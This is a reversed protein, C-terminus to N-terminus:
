SALSREVNCDVSNHIHFFLYSVGLVWCGVGEDIVVVVDFGQCTCLMNTQAWSHIDASQAVTRQGFVADVHQQLFDNVVGDVLELHIRAVADLDGDLVVQADGDAVIAAANRLALEDLGDADEIGATLVVRLGELLGDAQVANADLGNIRQAGMELHLREAVALHALGGEFAALEDAVDRFVRLVLVAGVDVELGVAVVLEELAVAEVVVDHLVHQAVVGVQVDSQGDHIVTAADEATVTQLVQQFVAHGVVGEVGDDVQLAVVDLYREGM